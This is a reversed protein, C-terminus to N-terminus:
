FRVPAEGYRNPGDTSKRVGIVIVILLPVWGLLSGLGFQRMSEIQRHPDASLSMAMAEEMAAGMAPIQALSLAYLAGPVVAWWGSLNSDHLRRVLSAALMVMFIVGTVLSLWLISGMMDGMVSPMMREVAEPDHQAMAFAQGFMDIMIPVTVLVSIVVTIMYVFLVFYWFTQRADRGNFDLLHALNYKISGLM